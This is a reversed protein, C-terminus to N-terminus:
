TSHSNPSHKLDRTKVSWFIAHMSPYPFGTAEWMLAGTKHAESTYLDFGIKQLALALAQVSDVGFAASERPSFPWGIEYRCCWAEEDRVPAFLRVPVDILQTKHRLKLVRFAIMQLAWYNLPAITHGRECAIFRIM